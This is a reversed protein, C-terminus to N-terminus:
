ILLQLQEQLQQQFSSQRFYIVKLFMNLSFTQSVLVKSPDLHSYLHNAALVSNSDAFDNVGVEKTIQAGGAATIGAVTAGQVGNFTNSNLLANAAIIKASQDASSNLRIIQLTGTVVNYMTPEWTLAGFKSIVKIPQLSVSVSVNLGIAYAITTDNISLVIRPASTFLPAMGM